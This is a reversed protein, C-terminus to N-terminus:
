RAVPPRWGLSASIDVAMAAVAPDDLRRSFAPDTPFSTTGPAFLTVMPRGTATSRVYLGDLDTPWTGAIARAWARCTPKPASDLSASAGNRLSWSTAGPATPPTLDLLRLSRVPMWAVLGQHRSLVIRRRGHFVEAFATLVDTAAYSVSRPGTGSAESTEPHPDWRMQPLPGAMRMQNWQQRYQGTLRHIRWLPRDYTVFDDPEATLARPPTRPNKATM